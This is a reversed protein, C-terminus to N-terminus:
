HFKMYEFTYEKSYSIKPLLNHTLEQKGLPPQLTENKIYLGCQVKSLHLSPSLIIRSAAREKEGEWM